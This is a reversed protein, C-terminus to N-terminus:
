ALFRKCHETRTFPSMVYDTVVGVTTCDYCLSNKCIIKNVPQGALVNERDDLATGDVLAKQLLLGFERVLRVVFHRAVYRGVGVLLHAGALGDYCACEGRLDFFIRAITAKFLFM